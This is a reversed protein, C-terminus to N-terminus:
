KNGELNLVELRGAKRLGVALEGVIGRNSLDSYVCLLRWAPLNALLTSSSLDLSLM